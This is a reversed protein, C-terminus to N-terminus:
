EFKSSTSKAPSNLYFECIDSIQNAWVLSILNFRKVVAQHKGSWHTTVLAMKAAYPKDLTTDDVILVGRQRNVLEQVEEWFAASDLPLRQLLRTYADYVPSLTGGPHILAAEM